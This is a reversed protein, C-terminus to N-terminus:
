GNTQQSEDKEMKKLFMRALTHERYRSSAVRELLQMARGTEGHELKKMALGLVISFDSPDAWFYDDLFNCDYFSTLEQSVHDGCSEILM